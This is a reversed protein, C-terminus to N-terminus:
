RDSRERLAAVGADVRGLAREVRLLVAGASALKVGVLVGLAHLGSLPWGIWMSVGLVISLIAERWMWARGEEDRLRGSFLLEGIGDLVLYAAVLSSVAGLTSVPNFMLVLGCVVALAGVALGLPGKGAAWARWGFYARVGGALALLLGVLFVVPAGALAPVIAALVGIGILAIGLLHTGRELRSLLSRSATM